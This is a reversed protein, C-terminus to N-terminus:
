SAYLVFPHKFFSMIREPMKQLSRMHSIINRALEQSTAAIPRNEISKKLDNNLYEDPNREPTYAPLFFLEIDDKHEELWKGLAHSHHVKLNDVILFVKLHSDKILRSLFRIFIEVNMGGKYVMFRVTGQNTIASIMSLSQRKARAFVVPTQGKPSYSRGKIDQNNVGTEDAWHIEAGEKKARARIEPYRKELWEQVEKPRQEYARKLPRQPTYGWRKLYEGMTRTPIRIGFLRSVLDRIAKRTWLAFALKMQDPTKDRILNQITKEQEQTLTRQEGLKRGRKKFGNTQRGDAPKIWHAVTNLHVGLVEGIERYSSGNKYLEKARVKLFTRTSDDLKRGDIKTM